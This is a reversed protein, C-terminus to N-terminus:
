DCGLEHRGDNGRRTALSGFAGRSSYLQRLRAESTPGNELQMSSRLRHNGQNVM